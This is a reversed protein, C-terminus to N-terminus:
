RTSVRSMAVEQFWAPLAPVFAQFAVTKPALGQWRRNGARKDLGSLQSDTM